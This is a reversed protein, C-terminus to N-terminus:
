QLEWVYVCGTWSLHDIYADIAGLVIPNNGLAFVGKFLNTEARDLPILGMEM